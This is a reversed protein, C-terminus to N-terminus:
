KGYLFQRSEDDVLEINLIIHEGSDAYFLLLAPKRGFSRVSIQVEGAAAELSFNGDFNATCGNSPSTSIAIFAVSDQGEETLLVVKGSIKCKNSELHDKERQVIEIKSRSPFKKKILSCSNTSVLLLILFPIVRLM